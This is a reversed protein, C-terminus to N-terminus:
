YDPLQLNEILANIFRTAEAGTVARHDVTISVPVLPRVEVREEVAWPRRSIRGTGVIAVQPPLVVMAAHEAGVMGFNSLTITAGRLQDAALTRTEALQKLTELRSSVDKATHEAANHLVPVLLGDGTETAIGLNVQTHPRRAMKASDFHCNLAPEQACASVVALVLRLLPPQQGFWASVDAWGTVTAPVVERGARAMNEAMSRRVGRLVQWDGTDTNAAHQVDELTVTGGPGTATIKALDLNLTTALHRAAPIVRVREPSSERQKAKERPANRATSAGPLSGAVTGTDVTDGDDFTFLVAGVSIREGPKGLLEGIRGSRPSPIDVVAKDTEISVLPQNEVVRDGPHVHWSVIEAEQLGEGLDPLRFEGTMM